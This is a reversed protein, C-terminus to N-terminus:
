GNKATEQALRWARANNLVITAEVAQNSLENIAPPHEPHYLDMATAIWPNRMMHRRPCTHTNYEGLRYM